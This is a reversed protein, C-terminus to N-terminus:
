FIRKAAGATVALAVRKHASGRSFAAEDPLAVPSSHLLTDVSVVVVHRGNRSLEAAIGECIGAVDNGAGAGFIAVASPRYFLRQILETYDGARVAPQPGPKM